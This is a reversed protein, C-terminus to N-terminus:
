ICDPAPLATTAAHMPTGAVALLGFMTDVNLREVSRARDNVLGQTTAQTRTPTYMTRTHM